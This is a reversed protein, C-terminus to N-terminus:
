HFVGGFNRDYLLQRATQVSYSILAYPLALLGKGREMSLGFGSRTTKKVRNKFSMQSILQMSLDYSLILQDGM